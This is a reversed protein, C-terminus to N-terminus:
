GTRVESMAAELIDLGDNLEDESVTLPPILRVVNDESGCTLLLLGKEVCREQLRSVYGTASRGDEMYELGIMLGLGRVDVLEPNTRMWGRARETVKAGLEAARDALRDRKMVDIVAMMAACSVPNGGYTTGHEGPHWSSMVGHSALIGAIPLGNGMAKAVTMIDPVVGFHETAWMKGTRGFGSQVEDAVLLIGYNDCIERLRPLFERPPVVYGGEGQVPEVIIAAVTDPSIRSEFLRYIDEGQAIPCAEGPAHSCLRFCHPYRVHHIGPLWPGTGRRYKAKSATLSLAGYTRGHFAGTFAIIETRGTARRALKMAGEVAEAGSNSFFAQDLGPPAISTLAQAAEVLRTHYTTVSTHWLLDVQKHVAAVVEPHGHGLNTVGIGCGFDLIDRGDVTYLHAGEARNVVLNSYRGYAQSVIESDRERWVSADAITETPETV